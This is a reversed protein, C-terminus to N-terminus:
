SSQVRGFSFQTFVRQFEELTLIMLGDNDNEEGGTRNETRRGHPNRVTVTSNQASVLASAETAAADLGIDAPQNSHDRLDSSMVSYIHAPLIFRARGTKSSGATNLVLDFFRKFDRDYDESHLVAWEDPTSSNAKTLLEGAITKLQGEDGEAAVLAELKAFVRPHSEALGAKTLLQRGAAVLRERSASSWQSAHLFLEEGEAMGVGDFQLLYELLTPDVFTPNAADTTTDVFGTEGAQDGFFLPYMFSITGWNLLSYGNELEEENYGLEEMLAKKGPELTEGKGGDGYPGWEEAFKAYAKELLPAWLAAEYQADKHISLVGDEVESYWAARKPEEGVRCGAGYKIWDGVFLLHLLSEDEVSVPAPVWQQGPEKTEDKRFFNVTLSTGDYTMMRRLHLPDKNVISNVATLFFCDDIAGQIVDEPQPKKGLYIDDEVLSNEVIPDELSGQKSTVQTWGLADEKNKTTTQVLKKERRPTKNKRSYPNDETRKPRAWVGEVLDESSGAETEPTNVADDLDFGMHAYERFEHPPLPPNSTDTDSSGALLEGTFSATSDMWGGGSAWPSDSRNDERGGDTNTAGALQEIRVSNPIKATQSPPAYDTSSQAGLQTSRFSKM